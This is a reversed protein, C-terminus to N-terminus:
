RTSTTTTGRPSCDAASSTTSAGSTRESTTRPVPPPRSSPTTTPSRPTTSSARRRAPARRDRARPARPVTRRHRARGRAADRRGRAHPPPQRHAPLQPAQQQEYLAQAVDLTRQASMGFLRNAHRQLETLDYLLPPPLRARSASSRSSRARQGSRSANSSARRGGRRGAAASGAAEIADAFGRARSRERPSPGAAPVDRRGRLLGGPRVRPDRARAGVLM